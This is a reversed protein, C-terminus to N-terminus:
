AGSDTLEQNLRISVRTIRRRAMNEVRATGIPLEIADGPRPVKGIREVILTALTETSAGSTEQNLFELVEDYRVDARASLRQPSAREIPPRESELQDELEGFVEEVVDELTVIGSTGGYEDRVILIQSRSERMRNIIRSLPLNEPIAEVPRLLAEINLDSKGVTRLVDQMYLIGVVEDIDGRCVPIRTHHLSAITAFLKDQPTDLDLWKVDLRHVMIDGADLDDIRLAKSVVMAHQEELAGGLSGEKVLLRLEDKSLAEHKMSEMSIGFARLIISGTREVLWVLPSLFGIAFRLPRALALAIREAFRLTIYKPVLEGVVVFVFTVFVFSIAISIGKGVTAGIWQAIWNSVLPETISGLGIGFMSIAIQIGAIYRSLSNLSQLLVKANSNGSKALSEIRSRRAGVLGYEAAVAVSNGFVLLVSALLRWSTDADM